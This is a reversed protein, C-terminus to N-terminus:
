KSATKICPQQASFLPDAKMRLPRYLRTFRLVDEHRRDKIADQLQQRVKGGLKQKAELLIQGCAGAGGTVPIGSATEQHQVRCVRKEIDIELDKIRTRANFCANCIKM